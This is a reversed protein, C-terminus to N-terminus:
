KKAMHSKEWRAVPKMRKRPVVKDKKEIIVRASDTLRFVLGQSSTLEMCDPDFGKPSVNIYSTELNKVKKAMNPTLSVVIEGEGQGMTNVMSYKTPELLSISFLDGSTLKTSDFKEKGDVSTVIVSYGSGSSAYFLVYGNQSVISPVEKESGCHSDEPHAKANRIARAMDINLQMETSKEDVSFELDTIARGQKMIVGRYFGPSQFQHIVMAMMGLSGSDFTTTNLLRRNVKAKM